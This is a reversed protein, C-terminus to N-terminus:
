HAPAPEEEHSEHEEHEQMAGGIYMMALLTFVLAQVFSIFIGLVVILARLVFPVVTLTKTFLSIPWFLFCLLALVALLKEKAMINGFLRMTLSVPKALEGVIHIFPMLVLMFIRICWILVGMVFGPPADISPPLFHALYNKLGHVKIGFFHTLLFVMVAFTVNVDLRGTPCTLGPILGILNCFFIYLFLFNLLPLFSDTHEGMLPRAFGDLWEYVMESFNQAGTPVMKKSRALTWLLCILLLVVLAMTIPNILHELGRMHLFPIVIPSEAQEMGLVHEM